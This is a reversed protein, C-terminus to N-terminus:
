VSHVGAARYAALRKKLAAPTNRCVGDTVDCLLRRQAAGLAKGSFGMAQLERASLALADTKTCTCRSELAASLAANKEATLTKEFAYLAKVTERGHEGILRLAEGKTGRFPTNAIFFCVSERFRNDTKLRRCQADAEAAGVPYMLAAFAAEATKCRAAADAHRRYTEASCDALPPLVTELVPRFDELVAAANKGALLKKLEAFIREASVFRLLERNAAAAAATAPEVAFGLASAFRLARLIRLADENFRRDPDGVARLIHARLDKRGGFPDVLGRDPHYAMANVTFDRRALDDTIDDAFSVADPRRHDRYAGDRRFTTLELSRDGILVTVTGHRLGTEIVRYGAFCRATEEPTSSVALDYDSPARGMLADRVSGGVLYGICGHAQLVSLATLVEGPLTLGGVANQRAEDAGASRM